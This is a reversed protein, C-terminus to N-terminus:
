GAQHEHKVPVIVLHFIGENAKSLQNPRSAYKLQCILRALTSAIDTTMTWPCASLTYHDMVGSVSQIQNGSIQVGLSTCAIHIDDPPANQQRNSTKTHIRVAILDLASALERIHHPQLLQYPQDRLRRQLAIGVITLAMGAAVLMHWLQFPILGGLEALGVTLVLGCSIWQAESFGAWYRRSPDGRLFEFCFRGAGYNVIHWALVTGAPQHGFILSAGVIVSALVWLSEVAQIPFLRTGVYHPSFGIETHAARYCVGWDHPRGHCCGVMLCGIRGCALFLGIGLVTVDLYPLIPQHILWLFATVVGIVALEQHYFILREEGTILKTLMAVGLFTAMSLLILLLLISSSLGQAIGLTM